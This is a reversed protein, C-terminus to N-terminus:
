EGEIINTNIRYEKELKNMLNLFEECKVEGQVSESMSQMIGSKHYELLGEIDNKLKYWMSEFRSLRDIEVRIQMNNYKEIFSKEENKLEQYEKYIASETINFDGNKIKENVTETLKIMNESVM